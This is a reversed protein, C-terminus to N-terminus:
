ADFSAFHRCYRCYLDIDQIPESCRACSTESVVVTLNAGCEKCFPDKSEPLDAGCHPCFKAETSMTM